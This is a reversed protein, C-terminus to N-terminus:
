SSESGADSAPRTPRANLVEVIEELAQDDLHELLFEVTPQPDLRAAVEDLRLRFLQAGVETQRHRLERRHLKLRDLEGRNFDGPQDALAVIAAEAHDLEMALGFFEDRADGIADQAPAAELLAAYTRRRPQYAEGGITIGAM